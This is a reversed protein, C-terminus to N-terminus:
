MMDGGNVHLVQGTVFGAADGALYTCAAAIEDVHGVRRVAIEKIREGYGNRFQPYQTWDRTTDILGPSVTNATIGFAGFEIALAKAMAYVGAKCTINHVRNPIPMFGDRGAIHIIRGWGRQQMGPIVARALYFSAHLNTNMIRQWEELSIDLFPTHLRVSANSVSIDVGGFETTAQDVMAQVAAHDAIDALVALAGVGLGRAEAAVGDIAAKNRHGNVVVNAGQRTFALAIARGINQGSGTILATRGALPKSTTESM